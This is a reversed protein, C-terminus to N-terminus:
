RAAPAYAVLEVLAHQSRIPGSDIKGSKEFYQAEKEERVVARVAPAYWLQYTCDTRERWFEDDDLHMVVSLAIADFTGAPTTIRRWGGVRVYRNVDGERRATENRNHVWQNWSKGPALPFDYRLLDQTFRRTEADFVAGVKVHGPSSLVETRDVDVNPGRQTVRVTIGEPTVATVEHVEEWTTPRLFGDQARYVWRDGVAYTPVPVRPGGELTPFAGTCAATLVVAAAAVVTRRVRSLPASM